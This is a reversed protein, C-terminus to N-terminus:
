LIDESLKEANTKTLVNIDKLMDKTLIKKSKLIRRCFKRRYTPKYLRMEDNKIDCAYQDTGALDLILIGTPKLFGACKKIVMSKEEPPVKFRLMNACIVIDAINDDIQACLVNSRIFQDLNKIATKEVKSSQDIGITELCIGRNALLQQCDHMTVGKSCGVDIVRLVKKDIKKSYSDIIGIIGLQDYRGNWTFGCGWMSVCRRRGIIIGVEMYGRSGDFCLVMVNEYGQQSIGQAAKDIPKGTMRNHM